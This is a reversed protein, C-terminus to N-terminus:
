EEWTTNDDYTRLTGGSPTPESGGSFWSGVEGALAGVGQGLARMLMNALPNQFIGDGFGMNGSLMSNALDANSANGGFDGASFGSPGDVIGFTYGLRQFPNNRFADIQQQRQQVAGLVQGLDPATQGQTQKPNEAQSAIGSIIAGWAM